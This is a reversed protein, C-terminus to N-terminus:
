IGMTRNTKEVSRAGDSELEMMARIADVNDPIVISEQHIGQFFYLEGEDVTISDKWICNEWMDGRPRGLDRGLEMIEATSGIGQGLLMIRSQKSFLDKVDETTCDKELEMNVTHVHMLTTPLKVATTTINIHPMVTKIDPGHHSPLTIPNPVIANIPGKKIDNPDAARRMLTVRAKKVGYEQDAAYIVRSLGTTNCSVVRVFDEGLAEQYNATANFSIGALEHDEGGQWIAKVGAKEYLQKNKEGIGGPTCDVVIDASKVMDEVTGAASIGGKKMADVKEAPAYVAYGKDVAISAEFNPRTKSIGIIEMDDQLSVADAVRKGITGYGNIAVKVKSM